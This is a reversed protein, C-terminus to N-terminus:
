YRKWLSDSARRLAMYSMTSEMSCPYFGVVSGFDPRGGVREMAVGKTIQLVMRQWIVEEQKARRRNGPVARGVISNGSVALEFGGDEVLGALGRRRTEDASLYYVLKVGRDLPAASFELKGEKAGCRRWEEDSWLNFAQTPFSQLYRVALDEDISSFFIRRQQSAIAAAVLTAAAAAQMSTPAAALDAAFSPMALM